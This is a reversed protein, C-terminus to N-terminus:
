AHVVCPIMQLSDESICIAFKETIAQWLGGRRVGGTSISPLHNYTHRWIQEEKTEHPRRFRISRIKKMGALFSVEDVNVRSWSLRTVRGLYRKNRCSSANKVPSLETKRDGYRGLTNGDVCGVADACKPPSTIVAHSRRASAGEVNHRLRTAGSRRDGRAFLLCTLLLSIRVGSISTVTWEVVGFQFGFWTSM